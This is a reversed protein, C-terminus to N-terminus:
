ARKASAGRRLQFHHGVGALTCADGYREAFRARAPDGTCHCPAVRRVGLEKCRDIVADIQAPSHQVMHFGGMVLELPEGVLETARAALNEVGPHACGTVLVWGAPTKVCLAHEVIRGKGLTGTTRAGACVDVSDEAEILESSLGRLQKKLGDPFGTPVYVPPRAGEMSAEARAQILGQMGGVHDGHEHSLVVAEISTPDIKLKKMNALLIRGDGGTDFLVTRDLGEILCGFGWATELGAVDRNNDFVITLAVDEEGKSKAPPKQPEPEAGHVVIM